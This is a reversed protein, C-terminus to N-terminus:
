ERYHRKQISRHRAKEVEYVAEAKRAFSEASFVEASQRASQRMKEKEAGPLAMWDALFRQFEGASEYQWGNEGERLIGKLCDDKRCLLPLGSALAEGYTMGQTESVSANVFLDGASYYEGIREHPIMGTFIVSKEIGLLRVQRELERRHPGDGAILLATQKERAQKQFRLLEEIHKEKALRGVYLLLTTGSSVSFEARIRERCAAEKDGAHESLEIGSPVVYIPCTIGYEELLNKTKESPAIMASVRESFGLMARRVFAKGWEGNM